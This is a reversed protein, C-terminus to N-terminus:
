RARLDPLALRRRFVAERAPDDVQAFYFRLAKAYESRVADDPLRDIQRLYADLMGPFDPVRAGRRALERVLAPDWRLLQGYVGDGFGVIVRPILAALRQQPEGSFIFDAKRTDLLYDLPASKEHGVRGRAAIEQHAVFRDTLGAHSEIAVAFSAEYVLRAEDGYFAVCVPLGEFARRLVAADHDTRAVRERSYYMWENAIGSQWSDATVPPPTAFSGVLAAVCLAYAPVRAPGFLALAGQELLLLLFPTIPVLLRAYMFDGGVRVISFAYTAAIAAALRLAGGPDLAALDERRQRRVAAAVLLAPGLALAWYREFYLRLYLWGQSYWALWASKAYYTNPFFDGYYAIRWVLHPLVVAVLAGGYLLASKWRPRAFVLLWAGTVGAPLLGDPRTLSAAGFVLGAAVLGRPREAGRLALAYGALLLATFASTELGGTAFISWEPNLAAGIAALPLWPAAGDRRRAIELGVLALLAVSALYAVVGWAAAWTAADVGLWLGVASWLTWLFNSYGEVREGANFVLGLGDLWNQAYRFSIFADDSMWRHAVARWTAFALAALTALWYAPRPLRSLTM